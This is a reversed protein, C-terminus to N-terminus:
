FRESLVDVVRRGAELPSSDTRELLVAVALLVTGGLGLWAWTPVGALVSLSERVTVVALIGTGVVMPGAQRCWGGLAVAALGVAGAVLAHWGAGGQAREAMAAGGLLLIGPVYAVWSSVQHRRQAFWGAMLLHLAVPAVYPEAATTAALHLHVFLGGTMVAGGAHGLAVNRLVLAAALALGGAVLLSDAFAVTEEASLLVGLGLAGGAAALFPARWRTGVVAALGTWAVACVCLGFGAWPLPVDAALALMVTLPQVAVAAGFAVAPRGLRVADVLYLIVALALPAVAAAPDLGTAGTVTLLVGIRAVDGFTGLVFALGWLVGAAFLLSGPEGLVDQGLLSGALGAGVAVVALPLEGDRRAALALVVAGGIGVAPAALPHTWATAVAWPVFVAAVVTGGARRSGAIVASVGVLAAATALGSVTGLAVGAVFCVAAAMTAPAGGSGRLLATGVPRGAAVPVARRADAALWGLAAVLLAAAMTPEATFRLLDGDDVLDFLPALALVFGAAITALGALAESVEAWAALPRGWFDDDFLALAVVEVLLFVGAAGLLQLRASLDAATVTTGAGVAVSALALFALRLDNRQRGQHALVAAAALGSALAVLRGQGILGLEELTGAGIRLRSGDFLLEGFAPGIAPALGAVAAWVAASWRLQRREPARAAMEAAVAIAALALAAPVPTVGAIGVALAVPSATAAWSLVVSRTAHALGAFVVTCVVGEALVTVRWDVGARLCLGALDVPILFAGLHFLVDGTAPLTRRLARGGVLVAGTLGGVLALKASDPLQDWRVALFVAAAAVLLFAGTSGVWTAATRRGSPHLTTTM